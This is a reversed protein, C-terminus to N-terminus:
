DYSVLSVGELIKLLNLAIRVSQAMVQLIMM